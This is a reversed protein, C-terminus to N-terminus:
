KKSWLTSINERKFSSHQDEDVLPPEDCGNHYKVYYDKLKYVSDSVVVLDEWEYWDYSYSFLGYLKM